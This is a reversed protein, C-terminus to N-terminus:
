EIVENARAILTPPITLGLGFTWAARHQPARQEIGLGEARSRSQVCFQTIDTLNV